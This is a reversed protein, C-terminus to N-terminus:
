KIVVIKQVETVKDTNMKIFYIGSATRNGENDKGDWTLEKVGKSLIGDHITRVKQGRLNYISINVPKIGNLEFHIKLLSASSGFPNPYVSINKLAATHTNDQNQVGEITITNSPSSEVGDRWATVYYDHTHQLDQLVGYNLQTIPLTAILNGNDYFRYHTWPTEGATTPEWSFFNTADGPTYTLESPGNPVEYHYIWKNGTILPLFSDDTALSMNLIQKKYQLFPWKYEYEKFVGFEQVLWDKSVMENTATRTEIISALYTVELFNIGDERVVESTVNYLENQGLDQNYRCRSSQWSDGVTLSFRQIMINNTSPVILETPPNTSFDRFSYIRVVYAMTDVYLYPVINYPTVFIGQELPFLTYNEHQESSGVETYMYPPISLMEFNINGVQATLWVDVPTPSYIGGYAGTMTPNIDEFGYGYGVVYFSGPSDLPITYTNDPNMQAYVAASPNDVPVAAITCSLMGLAPTITGSISQVPTGNFIPMFDVTGLAPDDNHDTISAAIALTDATGFDNNEAKVVISSNTFQYLVISHLVNNADINNQIRNRGWYTIVDESLDGICPNANSALYFGTFNGTITNDYFMPTSSAGGVMVGAGSNMNGPIFNNNIQNHQVQGDANLLYLGTYNYEINNYAIEPAMTGQATIDWGIIGQWRNHHIHNNQIYPSCSAGTSQISLQIAGRYTSAVGNNSIDCNNINVNSNEVIFVGNEKSYEILCHSVMVTSPNAIGIGYCNIGKTNGYFHCNDINVPAG